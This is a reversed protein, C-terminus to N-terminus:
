APSKLLNGFIGDSFLNPSPQRTKATSASYHILLFRYLANGAKASSFSERLHQLVLHIPEYM